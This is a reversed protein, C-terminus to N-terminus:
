QSVLHVRAELLMAVVYILGALAFRFAMPLLLSADACFRLLHMPRKM